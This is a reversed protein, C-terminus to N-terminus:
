DLAGTHAANGRFGSWQINEPGPTGPVNWVLVNGAWDVWAIEMQGDGDLDGIAPMVGAEGGPNALPKPFGALPRGDAHYAHLAYCRHYTFDFSVWCMGTGAVVDQGGDGDIDGIAASGAGHANDGRTFEFVQPWGLVGATVSNLPQLVNIGNWPPLLFTWSCNIAGCRIHTQPWETGVFVEPVGDGTIDGASIPEPHSDFRKPGFGTYIRERYAPIRGRLRARGGQGTFAALKRARSDGAVVDLTGNADLDAM